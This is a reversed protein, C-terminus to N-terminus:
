GEARIREILARELVDTEGDAHIMRDLWAAENGTVLNGEAERETVGWDADRQGFVKGFHNRVDPAEAFMRGMFRGVGHNDDAIFAELEKMRKHSLQANELTFGKLYNAVGDVFLQQWEPSNDAGLTVDKIRFLMEADFRSVAAPGHGGSAFVVRRIIRCEAGTIHTDSLEGGCRTPGAGTLVAAEIQKLAYHKLSDPVNRAKEIVRVLLELEAMTELRGDADLAGILWQAEAEDCMGRPETGNLVFEGLAEVFFDVWEGSTESLARNIAFIAEAEERHIRGDGWGLRRLALLEEPAISGDAAVSRSLDAFHISM